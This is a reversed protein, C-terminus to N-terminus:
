NIRIAMLKEGYEVPQADEAYIRVITGSVDSEIENLIKMAELLCVVQGKKVADGEQVFPHAEPNPRRYFTGVMTATLVHLGEDENRPIPAAAPPASPQAPPASAPWPVGGAMPYVSMQPAAPQQRAIRVHVGARRVEVESLDTGSVLKVLREIEEFTM